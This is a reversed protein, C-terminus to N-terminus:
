PYILGADAYSVEGDKVSKGTGSGEVEEPSDIKM